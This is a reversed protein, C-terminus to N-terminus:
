QNYINIRNEDVGQQKTMTVTLLIALGMGLPFGRRIRPTIM